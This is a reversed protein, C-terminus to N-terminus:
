PTVVARGVVRGHLLDDLAENVESLAYTRSVVPEFRRQELLAIMEELEKLGSARSGILRYENLAIDMTRVQSPGDPNYGVLVIVGDPRIVAFDTDLAQQTAVFEIAADVGYGGAAERVRSVVDDRTVNLTLDAGFRQALALKEDDIDAAIVHAGLLRALQLAHLGIGGAGTMFVWQGPQVNARVSIANWATTICDGLLSIDEFPVEAAVVRLATAPVRLYEAYAGPITFGVRGRLHPCIQERGTRCYECEGCNLYIAVAVHDGVAVGRAEAGLAVVEGAPEHGPIHPAQVFSMKGAVIKLDTGCVGCARVRVLADRPGLEPVPVSREVLPQGFKELVMARMTAPVEAVM